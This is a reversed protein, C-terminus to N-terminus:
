VTALALSIIRYGLSNSERSLRPTHDGVGSYIHCAGLQHLLGGCSFSIRQTHAFLKDGPTTNGSELGLILNPRSAVLKGRSGSM